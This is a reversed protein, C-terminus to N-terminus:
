ENYPALTATIPVNPDTANSVLVYDLAFPGEKAKVWQSGLIPGHAVNPVPGSTFDVKGGITEVNLTAIADRVAEKSKPDSSAQLALIGADLLSLTAGLQQTWQEGTAAEWGNSLDHGSQGTVPSTYPFDRHWYAASAMGEALSGMAEMESPFLGTKATQMIKVQRALGQQAAQRWFAAFDPPIPFSNIIEVGEAKFLAIQTSYDTTGTEYAGPDIITYGQRQFPARPSAPAGAGRRRRRTRRCPRAFRCVLRRPGRRRPRPIGWSPM